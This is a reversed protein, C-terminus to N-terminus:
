LVGVTKRVEIMKKNALTKAKKAGLTLVEAVYNNDIKSYKEQYDKLFDCVRDAVAKKFEGYGFNAFEKEAEKLKKNSLLSYITLLNTIGPKKASAKIQDGSDTTAKMIKERALDISDNLAIYNYKSKASKSMKKTPDDLGMIKGGEEKKKILAKPVTFTKTKYRENFRRALTRALELHQKQDEGVPVVDIDYLLIDAAQLIPYSFLGVNINEKNQKSKDKFQTMREAEGFQTLTTLIWCLETHESITSQVFFTIKKPDMGAALFHKAVSIISEKLEKPQRKITLAHLDVIFLFSEYERQLSLANQIMGLYNGLHINGTPQIGSILRKKM